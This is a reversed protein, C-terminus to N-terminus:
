FNASFCGNRSHHCESRKDLRRRNLSTRHLCLLATWSCGSAWVHWFNLVMNEIYVGAWLCRFWDQSSSLPGHVRFIMVLVEDLLCDRCLIYSLFHNVVTFSVLCSPTGLLCSKTVYQYKKKCNGPECTGLSTQMNFNGPSIYKKFIWLGPWVESWSFEMGRLTPWLCCYKRLFLCSM